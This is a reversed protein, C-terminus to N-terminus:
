CKSFPLLSKFLVSYSYSHTGTSIEKDSQTINNAASKQRNFLIPSVESSTQRNRLNSSFQNRHNVNRSFRQIYGLKNRSTPANNSNADDIGPQPNQHKDENRNIQILTNIVSFLYMNERISAYFLMLAWFLIEFVGGLTGIADIVGYTISKYHKVKSDLM